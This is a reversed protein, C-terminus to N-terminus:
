DIEIYDIADIMGKSLVHKRIKKSNTESDQEKTAPKMCHLRGSKKAILRKVFNNSSSKPKGIREFATKPADEGKLESPDIYMSPKRRFINLKFRNSVENQPDEIPVEPHISANCSSEEIPSISISPPEIDKPCAGSPQKLKKDCENPKETKDIEDIELFSSKKM